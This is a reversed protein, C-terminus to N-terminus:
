IKTSCDARPRRAAHGHAACAGRAAAVRARRTGGGDGVPAPRPVRARPCHRGDRGAPPAQASRGVSVPRHARAQGGVPRVPSGGADVPPPPHPRVNNAASAASAPPAAARPRSPLTHRRLGVLSAVADQGAAHAVVRAARGGRSTGRPSMTSCVPPRLAPAPLRCPPGARVRAASRAARAHVLAGRHPPSATPPSRLRMSRDRNIGASL